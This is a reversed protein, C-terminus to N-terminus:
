VLQLIVKPKDCLNCRSSLLLHASIHRLFCQSIGPLCSQVVNPRNCALGLQVELSCSFVSRALPAQHEVVLCRGQQPMSFYPDVMERTLTFHGDSAWPVVYPHCIRVSEPAPNIWLAVRHEIVEPSIRVSGSSRPTACALRTAGDTYTGSLKGINDLCSSGRTSAASVDSTLSSFWSFSRRSVACFDRSTSVRTCMWFVMNGCSVRGCQCRISAATEQVRM